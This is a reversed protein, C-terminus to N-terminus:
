HLLTIIVIILYIFYHFIFCFCDLTIYRFFIFLYSWSIGSNCVAAWGVVDHPLSVSCWLCDVASALLCCTIEVEALHNCFHFAVLCHVAFCPGIVVGVWGFLSLVFLWHILLLLAMAKSCISALGM